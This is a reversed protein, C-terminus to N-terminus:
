WTTRPGRGRPRGACGRRASFRDRRREAGAPAAGAPQRLHRGAGHRWFPRPQHPQRQPGTGGRLQFDPDGADLAPSGAALHFNDDAGCTGGLLNDAGDPDVFLPDRDLSHREMGSYNQLAALSYRPGKWNWLVAGNTIFYDNYDAFWSTGLTDFQICTQAAGASSLINNAVRVNNHTGALRLNVTANRYFTNNEVTSQPSSLLTLGTGTNAYVLNGPTSRGAKRM